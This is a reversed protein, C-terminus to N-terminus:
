LEKEQESDLMNEELLANLGTKLLACWEAKGGCFRRKPCSNLEEGRDEPEVIGGNGSGLSGKVSVEVLIGCGTKL